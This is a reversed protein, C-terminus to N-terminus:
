DSVPFRSGCRPCTTTADDSKTPPWSDHAGCVPCIMFEDADYRQAPRHGEMVQTM